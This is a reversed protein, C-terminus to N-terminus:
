LRYDNHPVQFLIDTISSLWAKNDFVSAYMKDGVKDGFFSVLDAVASLEAMSETDMYTVISQGYQEFITQLLNMCWYPFKSRVNSAVKKYSESAYGDDLSKFRYLNEGLEMIVRINVGMRNEDFLLEFNSVKNLLFKVSALLIHRTKIEDM